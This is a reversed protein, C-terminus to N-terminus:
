LKLKILMVLAGVAFGGAAAFAPLHREYFTKAVGEVRVILNKAGTEADAELSAIAGKVQSLTAPASPVPDM